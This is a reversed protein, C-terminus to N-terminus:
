GKGNCKELVKLLELDSIYLIGVVGALECLIEGLRKEPHSKCYKRLESTIKSIVRPNGQTREM